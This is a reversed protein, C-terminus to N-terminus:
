GRQLPFSEKRGQSPPTQVGPLFFVGAWGLPSFRQAGEQVSVVSAEGRHLLHQVSIWSGSSTDPYVLVLVSVRGVDQDTYAGARGWLGGVCNKFLKM